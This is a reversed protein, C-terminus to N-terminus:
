VLVRGALRIQNRTSQTPPHCRRFPWSRTKRGEAHPRLFGSFARSGAPSELSQFGAPGISATGTPAMKAKDGAIKRTQPDSISSTRGTRYAINGLHCLLTSKVGEEIEPASRNAKAFATSFLASISSTAERGKFGRTLKGNLDYFRGTSNLSLSRAPRAMFHLASLKEKSAARIAVTARGPREKAARFDFMIM